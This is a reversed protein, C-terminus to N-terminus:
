LRDLKAESSGPNLSQSLAKRRKERSGWFLNGVRNEEVINTPSKKVNLYKTQFQNEHIVHPTSSHHQVLSKLTGQSLLGFWDIRFSILGSYENSLSISFNFSWYKPWQICLASESSFVQYQSLNLAPSSPSLPYCLILHNSPMMSEISM